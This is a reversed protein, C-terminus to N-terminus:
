MNPKRKNGLLHALKCIFISYLRVEKDVTISLNRKKRFNRLIGAVVHLSTEGKTNAHSVVQLVVTNGM